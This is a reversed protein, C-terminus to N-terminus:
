QECNPDLCSPRPMSEMARRTIYWLRRSHAAGRSGRRLGDEGHYPPAPLAYHVGFRPAPKAHAHRRTQIHAARVELHRPDLSRAGNGHTLDGAREPLAEVLEVGRQRLGMGQNGACARNRDGHRTLQGIEKGVPLGADCGEDRAQRPLESVLRSEPHPRAAEATGFLCAM